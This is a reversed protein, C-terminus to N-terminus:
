RRRRARLRHVVQSALVLRVLYYCALVIGAGAFVLGLWVPGDLWHVARAAM